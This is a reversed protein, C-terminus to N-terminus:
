VQGEEWHGGVGAGPSDRSGRGEEGRRGSGLGQGGKESERQEAQRETREGWGPGPRARGWQVRVITGQGEVLRERGDKGLEAGFPDKSMQLQSAGGRSM